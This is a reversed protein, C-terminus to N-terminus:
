LRNKPKPLADICALGHFPEETATEGIWREMMISGLNDASLRQPKRGIISTMHTRVQNTKTETINQIPYVAAHNDSTVTHKSSELDVAM